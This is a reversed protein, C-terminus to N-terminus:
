PLYELDKYNMYTDVDWYHVSAASSNKWNFPTCNKIKKLYREPFPYGLQDLYPKLGMLSKFPNDIEEAKYNEANYIIYRHSLFFYNEKCILEILFQNTKYERIKVVIKFSSEEESHEHRILIHHFSGDKIYTICPYYSMSKVDNAKIIRLQWGKPYKNLFDNVQAKYKELKINKDIEEVKEKIASVDVNTNELQEKINNLQEQYTDVVDTALENDTMNVQKEKEIRGNTSTIEAVFQKFRELTNM